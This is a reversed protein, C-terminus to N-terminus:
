NWYREDKYVLLCTCYWIWIVEAEEHIFMLEKLNRVWFHVLRVQKESPHM